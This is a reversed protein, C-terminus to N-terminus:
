LFLFVFLVLVRRKFLNDRAPVHNLSLRLAFISVKLLVVKLWLVHPTSNQFVKTVKNCANNVIYSHSTPLHWIWRDETAM